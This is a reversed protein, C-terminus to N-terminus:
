NVVLRISFIDFVYHLELVVFVSTKEKYGATPNVIQLNYRIVASYLLVRLAM